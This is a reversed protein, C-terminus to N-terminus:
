KGDNDGGKQTDLYMELNDLQNSWFKKYFSIYQQAKQLTQPRLQIAYERGQKKRSILQEKELIRVHKSVAPLSMEYPKAIETVTLPNKTLRELIQRRTPDALSHFILNIQDNTQQYNVMQNFIDAKGKIQLLM